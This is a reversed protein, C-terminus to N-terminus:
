LFVDLVIGYVFFFVLGVCVYIFWLWNGRMVVWECLCWESKMEEEEEGKVSKFRNPKLTIM